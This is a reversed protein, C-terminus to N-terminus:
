RRRLPELLVLAGRPISGPGTQSYMQSGFGPINEGALNQDHANSTYFAQATYKAAQVLDAPLQAHGATYTLSVPWANRFAAGDTRRVGMVDFAVPVALGDVTCAAVATIPTNVPFLYPSGNGFVTETRQGAAFDRGCHREIAASAADIAGKIAVDNLTDSEGLWARMDAVTLYPAAPM